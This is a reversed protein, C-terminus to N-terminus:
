LLHFIPDNLLNSGDDIAKELTLELGEYESLFSLVSSRNELTFM